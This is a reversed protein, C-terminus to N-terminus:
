TRADVLGWALATELELRRGTLALFATRWRGIRRTISVTGGAGPILGMSLEPLRFWSGEQAVVRSAFAPVEIGAGVCAGHLHTRVKDSVRHVALGANHRLRVLHAEVVDTAIGFEDLDGGSCFSPGRGSVEVCAITPDCSAMRLGEILGDRVARGFANRREPRNLVVSLEDGHRTFLVPSDADPVDRWPTRARWTSFEQGALLMSYALSEVTVGEVVGVRSTLDLVHKLTLAAHPAAAVGTRIEEAASGDPEVWLAGPGGPALTSTLQKLLPASQLPLPARSLGITIQPLRELARVARATQSWDADDLDVFFLVDAPSSVDGLDTRAALEALEAVDVTKAM